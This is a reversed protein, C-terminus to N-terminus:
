GRALRRVDEPGVLVEWSGDNRRRKPLDWGPRKVAKRLAEVSRGTRTSLASLPMWAPQGADQGDPPIADQDDM